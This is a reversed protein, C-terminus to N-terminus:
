YHPPKEDILRRETSAPDSAQAEALAVIESQLRDVTGHLQQFLEDLEGLADKVGLVRAVDDFGVLRRAIKRAQLTEDYGALLDRLAM